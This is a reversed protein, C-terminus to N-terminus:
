RRPGLCLSPASRIPVRRGLCDPYVPHRLRSVSTKTVTGCLSRAASPPVQNVSTRCRSCQAGMLVPRGNPAVAYVLSEPRAPDFARDDHESRCARDM